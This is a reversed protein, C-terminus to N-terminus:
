MILWSESYKIADARFRKRLNHRRTRKEGLSYNAMKRIKKRRTADRQQRKDDAM